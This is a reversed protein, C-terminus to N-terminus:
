SIGVVRRENRIAALLVAADYPAIGIVAIVGAECSFSSFVTVGPASSTAFRIWHRVFMLLFNADREGFM